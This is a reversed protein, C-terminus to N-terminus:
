SARGCNVKGDCQALFARFARGNARLSGDANVLGKAGGGGDSGFWIVWPIHLSATKDLLGLMTQPSLDFQGIENTIVPKGTARRLYDVTMGLAAPTSQYWHFNVYDLNLGRFGAILTLTDNLTERAKPTHALIPRNPHQSNPLDDIIAGGARSDPFALQAYNDAAAHKGRHWLDYWTALQVGLSVLGGDSIEVGRGHAVPIAVKLQDLYQQPTGAYFKDATEENEISVLPTPYLNLARGLEARYVSPKPPSSPFSTADATMQVQFGADEAAQIPGSPLQDLRVSVRLRKASLNRAAQLRTSPSTIMVGYRSVQSARHKGQAPAPAAGAAGALAISGALGLAALLILRQTSFARHIM